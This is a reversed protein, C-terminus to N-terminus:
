PELTQIQKELNRSTCRTWAPMLLCLVRNEIKQFQAEAPFNAGLVELAENFRQPFHASSRPFITPRFPAKGRSPLARAHTCLECIRVSATLEASNSDTPLTQPRGVLEPVPYGPVPQASGPYAHM